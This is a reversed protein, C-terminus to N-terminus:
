EIGLMKSIKKWAAQRNTEFTARNDDSPDNAINILAQCTKALLDNADIAQKTFDLDEANLKGNKALKSLSDKTGTSLNKYAGALQVTKEKDYAKAAYLDGLEAIAMYATFMGQGALAGITTMVEPSPTGPDQAPTPAASLLVAVTLLLAPKNMTRSETSKITNCCRSGPPRMKGIHHLVVLPIDAAFDRRM